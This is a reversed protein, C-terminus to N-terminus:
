RRAREARAAAHAKRLREAASRDEAGVAEVEAEAALSARLSRLRAVEDDASGSGRSALDVHLARLSEILRAIQEESRARAAVLRALRPDEAVGAGPLADGLLEADALLGRLRTEARAVVELSEPHDAALAGIRGVLKAIVDWRPDDPAQAGAAVTTQLEAQLTQREWEAVVRHSSSRASRTRLLPILTIAIWGMMAALLGQVVLPSQGLSGALTMALLGVAIGGLLFGTHNRETALVARAERVATPEEPTPTSM